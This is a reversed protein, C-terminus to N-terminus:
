RDPPDHRNQGDHDDETLEVDWRDLCASCRYSVIQGAAWGTECDPTLLHCTEGCDVCVITSPPRIM